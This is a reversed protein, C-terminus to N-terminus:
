AMYESIYRCHVLLLCYFILELIDKNVNMPDKFHSKGDDLSLNIKLLKIISNFTMKILDWIHLKGLKVQLM